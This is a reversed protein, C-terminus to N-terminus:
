AEGGDLPAIRGYLDLLNRAQAQWSYREQSVRRGREGMEVARQRDQHLTMVAAVIADPDAPDVVLGCRDPEILARWTPFDSSLIPLGAAMYEFFKTLEKEYYHESRPFVALAATWPESLVGVMRDSVYYGVGELVITSVEAEPRTSRREWAITGDAARLGITADGSVARIQDAVQATMLGTFQILCGPIRNALDAQVLAGRSPTVNGVYVLKVREMPAADRPVARLAASREAHPYNLVMTAGPFSRAYYREAIVISFARAALRAMAKYLGAVVPRLPGPIWGRVGAAQAFDEHVDYVVQKGMLRLAFGWPILEPDHFHYISADFALARRVVRWATLTVRELRGAASKVALVRVGDRVTDEAAGVVFAVDYGAAALTRCERYFIRNDIATHHSSLHAVKIPPMNSQHVM